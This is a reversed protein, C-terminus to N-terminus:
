KHFQTEMDEGDENAQIEIGVEGEIHDGIAMSIAHLVKYDFHDDYSNLGKLLDERDDLGENGKTKIVEFIAAVRETLANVMDVPTKGEVNFGKWIAPYDADADHDEFVGHSHGHGPHASPIPYDADADHGM